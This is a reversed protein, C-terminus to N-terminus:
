FAMVFCFSFPLYLFFGFLPFAHLSLKNTKQLLGVTFFGVSCSSLRLGGVWLRRRKGGDVQRFDPLIKKKGASIQSKQVENTQIQIINAM